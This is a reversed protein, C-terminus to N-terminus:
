VSIRCSCLPCTNNDNIWKQLCGRHFFHGCPTIKASSMGQYCISCVDGYNCLEEYTAWTLSNIKKRCNRRLRFVDYGDKFKNWVNSYTHLILCSTQIWSLGEIKVVWLGSCSTIVSGAFVVISVLSRVCFIMDDLNEISYKVDYLFITYVLLSGVIQVVTSSTHIVIAIATGINVLKCITYIVYCSSALLVIYTMLARIHNTIKTSASFSLIKSDLMEYTTELFIGMVFFSTIKLLFVRRQVDLHTDTHHKEAVGFRISLLLFVVGEVLGGVDDVDRGTKRFGYLFTELPLRAYPTAHAVVVSTAMLGVPTRCCEEVCTSLFTILDSWSMDWILYDTEKVTFAASYAFTAVWFVLLQQQISDIIPKTVSYFGFVDVLHIWLYIEEILGRESLSVRYSLYCLILTSTFGHIYHTIYPTLGICVAAVPLTNVMMAAAKWTKEESLHVALLGTATCLLFATLIASDNIQIGNLTPELVKRLVYQSPLYLLLMETALNWYLKFLHDQRLTLM